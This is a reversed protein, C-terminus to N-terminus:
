RLEAPKVLAVTLSFSIEEFCVAGLLWGRLEVMEM